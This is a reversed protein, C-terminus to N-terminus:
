NVLEPNEFINGVVEYNGTFELRAACVGLSNLPFYRFLFGYGFTGDYTVVGKNVVIDKLPTRKGYSVEFVKDEENYGRPIEVRTGNDPYEVLIDGNYIERGNIDLINIFQQITHGEPHQRFSIPPAIEGIGGENTVIRWIAKNSVWEKKLNDWVRFKIIPRTSSM